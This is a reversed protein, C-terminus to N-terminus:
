NSWTSIIANDATERLEKLRERFRDISLDPINITTM